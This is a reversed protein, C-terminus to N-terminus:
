VSKIAHSNHISQFYNITTLTKEFSIDNSIFESTRYLKMKYHSKEIKDFSIDSSIFESPTYLKIKTTFKNKNKKLHPTLVLKNM